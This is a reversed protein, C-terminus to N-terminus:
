QKPNRATILKERRSNVYRRVRHIPAYLLKPSSRICGGIVTIKRADKKVLGVFEHAVISTSAEGDERVHGLAVLTVMGVIASMVFQFDLGELSVLPVKYPVGFESLELSLSWEKQVFVDAFLGGLASAVGSAISTVVALVSLYPAAPKPYSLKAAINLTTLETGANSLGLLVGLTFLLPASLTHKEPLTTFTWSFMSVVFVAASVSLIPKNGYRDTLKGFLGMFYISSLRTTITFLMVYLINLELVSLMYVTFFPTALSTAFSWFGLSAILKRFNKDKFPMKLLGLSSHREMEPEPINKIFFLSVLGLGVASAFIVSYSKLTDLSGGSFNDLLIGGLVGLISSPLYSLKFRKAYFVGRSEMPILDRMWSNWSCSSVNGLISSASFLVGVLTLNQPSLFPVIAIFLWLLRSAFTSTLTIFKRKGTREVMYVTPVQALRSLFSVATILGIYANNAGMSLVFAVLFPGGTLSFFSQSFVGDYIVANLDKRPYKEQSETMKAITKRCNDNITLLSAQSRHKNVKEYLCDVIEVP